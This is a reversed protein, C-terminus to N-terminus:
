IKDCFGAYYKMVRIALGLDVNKSFSLPKGNDLSELAALEDINEEMLRALKFMLDGRRAVGM